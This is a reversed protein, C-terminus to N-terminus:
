VEPPPNFDRAVRRARLSTILVTVIASFVIIKQGVVQLFLEHPGSFKLARALLVLYGALLATFGVFLWGYVPAFESSRFLVVASCIAALTFFRFAWFVFFLHEHFLLDAPTAAVGVFCLGALVGFGSGATAVFRDLRRSKFLTRFGAFYSILGLAALLLGACFLVASPLNPQRGHTRWQGLDSFANMTFSYGRTNFDAATSGPYLVMAVMSFVLFGLCGLM